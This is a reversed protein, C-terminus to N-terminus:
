CFGKILEAIREGSFPKLIYDTFGLTVAKQKSLDSESATIAVIPINANNLRIREALEYGNVGPMDLDTLIVDIKKEIWIRLAEEGNNAKTVKYGLHELQSTMVELNIENDEVLLVKIAEQRAEFNVKESASSLFGGNEDFGTSRQTKGQLLSELKDQCQKLKLHNRIRTKTIEPIIPKKIYDVAGLKLGKFEDEAGSMASVFIVPIHTTKENVKLRRCVEYGDIEPMMIDLLILDPQPSKQALEIGKPGDTAAIVKFEDKLLGMLVQINEPSDDIILIRQSKMEDM